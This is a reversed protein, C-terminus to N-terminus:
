SPRSTLEVEARGGRKRTSVSPGNSGTRRESPHFAELEEDEVEKGFGCCGGRRDKQVSGESRRDRVGRERM